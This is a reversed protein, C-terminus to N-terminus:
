SLSEVEVTLIIRKIASDETVERQAFPTTLPLKFWYYGDDTKVLHGNRLAAKIEDSLRSVTAWTESYDWLSINPFAIQDIIGDLAQYTIQPYGIEEAQEETTVTNEDFAPVGFSNWFVNQAQWSDM